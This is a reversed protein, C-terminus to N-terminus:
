TYFGQEPLTCSLKCLKTCSTVKGPMTVQVTIMRSQLTSSLLTKGQWSTSLEKQNPLELAEKFKIIM